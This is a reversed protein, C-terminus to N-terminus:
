LQVFNYDGSYDNDDLYEKIEDLTNDEINIELDDIKILKGHTPEIGDDNADTYMSVTKWGTTEEVGDLDNLQKEIVYYINKM